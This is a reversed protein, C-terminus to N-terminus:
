LMKETASHNQPSQLSLTTILTAPQSQAARPTQRTAQWALVALTVKNAHANSMATTKRDSLIAIAEQARMHETNRPHLPM